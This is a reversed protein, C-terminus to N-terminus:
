GTFHGGGCLEVKGTLLTGPGELQLLEVLLVHLDVLQLLLMDAAEAAIDVARGFAQLTVNLRGM